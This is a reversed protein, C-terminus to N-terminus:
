EEEGEEILIEEQPEQIMFMLSETQKQTLEMNDLDEFSILYIPVEQKIILISALENNIDDIKEAPITVNEDTDELNVGNKKLIELRTKEVEIALPFLTQMNKSILYSVKAPYTKNEESFAESLNRSIFYIEDNSYNRMEKM